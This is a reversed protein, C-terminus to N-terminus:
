EAQPGMKRFLFGLCLHATVQSLDHTWHTTHGLSQQLQKHGVLCLKIIQFHRNGWPASPNCRDEQKVASQHEGVSNRTDGVWESRPDRTQQLRLPATGTGSRCQRTTRLGGSVWHLHSSSTLQPRPHLPNLLCSPQSGWAPMAEEMRDVLTEGSGLITNLM